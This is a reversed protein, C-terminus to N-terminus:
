SFINAIDAFLRKGDGDGRREDEGSEKFIPLWRCIYDTTLARSKLLLIVRRLVAVM